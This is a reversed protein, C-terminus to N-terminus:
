LWEDLKLRGSRLLIHLTWQLVAHLVVQDCQHHSFAHATSPTRVHAIIHQSVKDTVKPGKPKDDGLLGPVILILSLVGLVLMIIIVKRRRLLSVVERFTFEITVGSQNLRTNNNYVPFNLESTTCDSQDNDFASRHLLLKPSYDRSASIFTLNKNFKGGNKLSIIFNHEWFWNIKCCLTYM